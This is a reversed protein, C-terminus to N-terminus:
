TIQLIKRMVKAYDENVGKIPLCWNAKIQVRAWGVLVLQVTLPVVIRSVQWLQLRMRDRINTAVRLRAEIRMLTEESVFSRVAACAALMQQALRLDFVTPRIVHAKIGLTRRWSNGRCGFMNLTLSAPNIRIDHLWELLWLPKKRSRARSKTRYNHMQCSM